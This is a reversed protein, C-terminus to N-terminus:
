EGKTATGTMYFTNSPCHLTLNVAEEDAYGQAFFPITRVLTVLAGQLAYTGDEAVTGAVPNEHGLINLCGNIEEQKRRVRLKGRRNGLQTKLVVDYTYEM